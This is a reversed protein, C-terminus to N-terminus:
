NIHDVNALTAAHTLMVRPRGTTGSTYILALIAEPDYIPDSCPDGPALVPEQHLV